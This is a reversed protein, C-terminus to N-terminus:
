TEVESELESCLSALGVYGSSIRMSQHVETGSPRSSLDTLRANTTKFIRGQPKITSTHTLDIITRKEKELSRSYQEYKTTKQVRDNM